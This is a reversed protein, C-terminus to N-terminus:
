LMPSESADGIPSNLPSDSPRPRDALVDPVLTARSGLFAIIRSVLTDLRSPKTQCEWIVLVSWGDKKLKRTIATDRKENREFKESWFGVRTKPIRNGM